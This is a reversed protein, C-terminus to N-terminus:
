HNETSRIVCALNQSVKNLFANLQHGCLFDYEITGLMIIQISYNCNIKPNTFVLNIRLCM